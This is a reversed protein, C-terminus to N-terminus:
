RLRAEAEVQELSLGFKEGAVIWNNQDIIMYGGHHDLNMPGAWRRARDTRLYPGKRRLARRVRAERTADTMTLKLLERRFGGDPLDLAEQYMPALKM